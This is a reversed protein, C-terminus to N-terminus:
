SRHTGTYTTGIVLFSRNILFCPSSRRKSRLGKTLHVKVEIAESEHEDTTAYCSFTLLLGNPARICYDILDTSM